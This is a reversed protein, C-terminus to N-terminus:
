IKSLEPDTKKERIRLRIKIGLGDSARFVRKDIKVHKIHFGQVPKLGM